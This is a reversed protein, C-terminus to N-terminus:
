VYYMCMGYMSYLCRPNYYKTNKIPKITTAMGLVIEWLCQLLMVYCINYLFLQYLHLMNKRLFSLKTVLNGMYWSYVVCTNQIM